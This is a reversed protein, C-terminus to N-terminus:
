DISSGSKLAEMQKTKAREILATAAGNRPELLLVTEATAIAKDYQHASIYGDARSLLAGVKRALGDAAAGDALSPVVRAPAAPPLPKALALPKAAVTPAPKVVPAPIPAPAPAPAPIEEQVAVPAPSAPAAPVAPASSEAAAAGTDAPVSAAADTPADPVAVTGAAKQGSWWLYGGGAGAVTVLAALVIATVKLRNDAPAGSSVTKAV